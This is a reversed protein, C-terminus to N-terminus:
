IDGHTSKVGYSIQKWAQEIEKTRMAALKVFEEDLNEFSAPDYLSKLENYRAEVAALKELM